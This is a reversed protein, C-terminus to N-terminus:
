NFRPAPVGVRPKEAKGIFELLIRGRRDCIAGEALENGAQKVQAAIGLHELAAMANSSLTIGAGVPALVPARELIVFPRGARRLACGLALGGIGAGAIIIM